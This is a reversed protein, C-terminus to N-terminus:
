RPVREIAVFLGDSCHKVATARFPAGSRDRSHGDFDYLRDSIYGEGVLVDVSATHRPGPDAPPQVTSTTM